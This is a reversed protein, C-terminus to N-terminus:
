HYIYQVWLLIGHEGSGKLHRQKEVAIEVEKVGLRLSAEKVGGM